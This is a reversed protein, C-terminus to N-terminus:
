DEKKKGGTSRVSIKVKGRQAADSGQRKEPHVGESMGGLCFSGWRMSEGGGVDALTTGAEGDSGQGAGIKKGGGGGERNRTKKAGVM